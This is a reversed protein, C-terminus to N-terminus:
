EYRFACPVQISAEVIARAIVRDSQAESAPLRTETITSVLVGEAGAIEDPLGLFQKDTATQERLLEELRAAIRRVSDEAAQRDMARDLVVAEITFTKLVAYAPAAPTEKKAVARVLIAPFEAQALSRAREAGGAAVAAVPPNLGERLGGEGTDALLTAAIKEEVTKYDGNNLPM